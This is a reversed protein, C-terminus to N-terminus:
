IETFLDLLSTFIKWVEIIMTLAGSLASVYTNQSPVVKFLTSHSDLAKCIKTFGNYVSNIEADLTISRAHSRSQWPEEEM